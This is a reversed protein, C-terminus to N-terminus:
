RKTLQRPDRPVTYSFALSILSFLLTLLLLLKMRQVKLVLIKVQSLRFSVPAM